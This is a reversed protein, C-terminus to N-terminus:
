KILVLKISQASSATQIRVYFVGSPLGDAKLTVSYVGADQRGNVLTRVKQGLANYVTLNVENVVSLQGSLPGKLSYRIATTPNFPNPFAQLNFDKPVDQIPRQEIDTLLLENITQLMVQPDYESHLYRVIGNQDIICDRPYPTIGQISYRNYVQSGGDHLVPFTLGFTEAFERSVSIDEGNNIGFVQVKSKDLSSWFTQEM